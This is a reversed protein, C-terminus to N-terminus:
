YTKREFSIFYRVLADVNVGISVMRVPDLFFLSMLLSLAPRVLLFLSRHIGPYKEGFVATLGSVARATAIPVEQM